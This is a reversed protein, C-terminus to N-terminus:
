SRSPRADTPTYDASSFAGGMHKQAIPDLPNKQKLIEEAFDESTVMEQEDRKRV